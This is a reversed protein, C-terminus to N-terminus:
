GDHTSDMLLRNARDTLKDVKREISALSDKSAGNVQKECAEYRAMAKALEEKARDEL